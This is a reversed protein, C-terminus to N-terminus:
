SELGRYRTFARVAMLSAPRAVIIVIVIITLRTFWVTTYTEESVIGQAKLAGVRSRHVYGRYLFRAVFFVAIAGVVRVLISTTANLVM